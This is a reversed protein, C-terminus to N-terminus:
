RVRSLTKEVANNCNILDLGSVEQYKTLLKMIEEYSYGSYLLADLGKDGSLRIRTLLENSLGKKISDIKREKQNM